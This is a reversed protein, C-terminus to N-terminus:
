RASQPPALPDPPVPNTVITHQQILWNPQASTGENVCLISWCGQLQLTTPEKVPPNPDPNPVTGAWQGFAWAWDKDTGDNISQNSIGTLTWGFKFQQQFDGSISSKGPIVGETACLVAKDTYFNELTTADKNKAATQWDNILQSPSQEPM